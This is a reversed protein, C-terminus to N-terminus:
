EAKPFINGVLQPKRSPRVLPQFKQSGYLEPFRWFWLGGDAALSLIGDPAAAVARWDSHVGLRTARASEPQTLPSESFDWVWLTGDAKLTVPRGYNVVVTVWNTESGLQLDQAVVISELGRQQYDAVVRFTGDNAVGLQFLGSVARASCWVWGRLRGKDLQPTREAVWDESLKLTEAPKASMAPHIYAKGDRKLLLMRDNLLSIEAWDTDAGLREPEFSRLGPWTQKWNFRNTGICWLTGDNKLALAVTWHCMLSKWDSDTGYRVLKMPEWQTPEGSRWILRANDPKESVWLSGDRQLAMVDRACHAVSSWNSGALFASGSRENVAWNDLLADQLSKAQFLFRTAWARGDAFQVSTRFGETRMSVVDRVALRVASHAPELTALLEWARQYIATAATTVLAFSLLLVTLNRRWVPWGVLVRKFNWYTLGAVTVTLVPLGIFYIVPGRWLPYHVVDEIFRAGMICTWAVLTGAIAPALAQLTNRAMSSAYFAVSVFSVAFLLLPLLSLVPGLGLLLDALFGQIQREALFEEPINKMAELIPHFDPLIRSGEFLVPAIVGFVIALLLAVAFKTIFQTRRRVPLCLQAELTGLKREEAVAVCGIMLPLVPWFLWFAETLIELTPSDKFGGGTKRVILIGVHLVALVVAIAFTSQHLQFEKAILALRPRHGKIAAAPVTRGPLKLWGPLAINGGTWAVDEARMFMRQAWFFGAFSYLSLVITINRLIFDESGYKGTFHVTLGALFAPILLTFWFAAAAQRLLLVTWLGGSYATTLLLGAATLMTRMDKPNSWVYGPFHLLLSLWLVGFVMLLVTALVSAKTWWIRPRSAPQSLLQALTNCSVERGFSNLATTIVLAPCLVFPMLRLWAWRAYEHGSETPILWVSLALVLAAGFSPLLLRIEKKVLPNM